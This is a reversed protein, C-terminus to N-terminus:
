KAVTWCGIVIETNERTLVVLILVATSGRCKFILSCSILRVLFQQMVILKWLILEIWLNMILMCWFNPDWSSFPWPWKEGCGGMIVWSDVKIMSNFKYWCAFFFNIGDALKKSVTLKQILICLIPKNWSSMRWTYDIKTDWWWIPWVWKQGHEGEFNEIM